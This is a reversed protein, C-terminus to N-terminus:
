SDRPVQRFRHHPYASAGAVILKPKSELAAKRVEDFNIRETTKDVGYAVFNFYKGSINVPSGHTLHGGHALNMGLVTDGPKIAAFYVGHQGSGWLSAPRQRSDAGFIRRRRDRALNETIDM